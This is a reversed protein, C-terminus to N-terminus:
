KYRGKEEELRKMIKDKKCFILSYTDKYNCTEERESLSIPRKHPRINFAFVITIIIIVSWLFIVAKL